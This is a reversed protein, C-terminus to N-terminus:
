KNGKSRAGGRVQELSEREIERCAMIVSHIRDIQQRKGGNQKGWNHFELRVRILLVRDSYCNSCTVDEYQRLPSDDWVLGCSRCEYWLPDVADAAFRKGLKHLRLPTAKAKVMM